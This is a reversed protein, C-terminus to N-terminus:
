KKTELVRPLHTHLTFDSPSSLPYICKNTKALMRSYNSIQYFDPYTALYHIRYREGNFIQMFMLIMARCFDLHKKIMQKSRRKKWHDRSNQTVQLYNGTYLIKGIRQITTRRTGYWLLVLLKLDWTFYREEVLYPCYFIIIM